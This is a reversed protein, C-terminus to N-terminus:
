TAPNTKHIGEEGSVIRSDTDHKSKKDIAAIELRVMEIAHRDYLRINGATASPQIEPRTNLVHTVRHLAVGLEEAIVGPTILKPPQPPQRNKM